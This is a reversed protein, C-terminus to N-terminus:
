TFFRRIRGLFGVEQELEGEQFEVLIERQRTTLTRPIEVDICVLLDGRTTKELISFGKSRLRLTAGPQTAPPIRLSVSGGEITALTRECGLAAAAMSINLKVYIDSGKLEMEPHPRVIIRLILDGSAGGRRGAHGSGRIRLQSGSQIGAPVIVSVNTEGVSIGSGDCQPCPLRPVSGSASCSDCPVRMAFGGRGVTKAGLGNCGRCKVLDTKSDSCGSGSCGDCIVMAPVQIEAPAGKFAVELDLTVDATINGGHNSGTARRHAGMFDRFVAEFHDAASPGQANSSFTAHGLRDYAGRKQADKLVEYAESVDKFRAESSADGQNRDPHHKMALSRYAKKIEDPTATRPVGLVDYYDAKDMATGESQPM